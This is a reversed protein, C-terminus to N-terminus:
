RFHAKLEEPLDDFDDALEIEGRLGGFAEAVPRRNQPAAIHAGPRVPRRLIVEMGREGLNVLKSLHRKAEHLGARVM